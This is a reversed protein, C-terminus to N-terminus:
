ALRKKQVVKFFVGNSYGSFSSLLMGEINERRSWENVALIEYGYAFYSLYQLPKFYAPLTNIKIYFGGFAMLPVVVVPMVAVALDTTGFICSM